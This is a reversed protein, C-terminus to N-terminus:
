SGIAHRTEGQQPKKINALPYQNKYQKRTFSVHTLPQSTACWINAQLFSLNIAEITNMEQMTKNNTTTKKNKVQENRAQQKPKQNKKQKQLCTKAVIWKYRIWKGCQQTQM